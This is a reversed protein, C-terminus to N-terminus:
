NHAGPCNTPKMTPGSINLATAIGTNSPDDLSYNRAFSESTFGPVLTWNSDSGITASTDVNVTGTNGISTGMSTITAVVIGGRWFQWGPEIPDNAYSSSTGTINIVTGSQSATISESGNAPGNVTCFTSGTAGVWNDNGIVVGLNAWGMAFLAEGWMHSTSPTAPGGGPAGTTNTIHVNNSITVNAYRIGHTAGASNFWQASNTCGGMGGGGSCYADTLSNNIIFNGVATFHDITKNACNTGGGGGCSILSVEGHSTTNLDNLGRFYNYKWTQANGSNTGGYARVSNINIFVNYEADLSTGFFSGDDEIPTSGSSVSANTGDYQNNKFTMNWAFEYGVAEASAFTALYSNSVLATSGTSPSGGFYLFVPNKGIKAGSFDYNNLVEAKLGSGSCPVWGDSGAPGGTASYTCTGDSITRPDQPTLTKDPGIPYDIGPINFPVINNAPNSHQPFLSIQQSQQGVTLLNGSQFSGNVNALQCGNDGSGTGYLCGSSAGTGVGGHHLRAEAPSCLVFAAVSATALLISRM